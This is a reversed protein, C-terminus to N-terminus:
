LYKGENRAYKHMVSCVNRGASITCAAKSDLATRQAGEPGENSTRDDIERGGARPRGTEARGSGDM